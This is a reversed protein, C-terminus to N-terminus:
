AEPPKTQELILTRLARKGRANQSRYALRALEIFREEGHDVEPETTQDEDLWKAPKGCATEIQRALKDSINRQTKESRIQTWMSASIQLKKAFLEAMGLPKVGQLAQEAVFEGFLVLTNNRRIAPLSM